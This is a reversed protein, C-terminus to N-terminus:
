DRGHRKEMANLIERNRREIRYLERRNRGILMALLGFSLLQLGGLLLLTMITMLPRIPNLTEAQWLYVIYFGVILGIVASWLGLLGFLLIPREVFAFTLHSLVTPRVKSKSKGRDRASLTAPIELVKHGLTLVKALIELHIEKGNSELDLGDLVERRYARVVCTMTHLRGPMAASLLLNGFKSVLLRKLPVNKTKGGPMYASALVVDVDPREDLTNLMAVIHDPSYSLDADISCIIEGRAAAFGTRLAKGRGENTSYGTPRIRRDREAIRELREATKDTSGDNVPILEFDLGEGELHEVLKDLTEEALDVEDFMPIVVSIRPRKDHKQSDNM